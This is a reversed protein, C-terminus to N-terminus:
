YGQSKLYNYEEESIWEVVNAYTGVTGIDKVYFTMYQLIFNQCSNFYSVASQPQMVRLKNDGWVTGQFADATTGIIQEQPYMNLIPQLPDKTDFNVKIDYGDYLFNKFIVGNEQEPDKEVELLRIETSTMYEAFFTSTLVAHGVFKNIDFPCVKVLVVKTDCGYLDWVKEDPANLRLKVGISDIDEFSDFHGRIRVASSLEGAKITINNSELDYHLGEIANSGNDVIEVSYTRDYDCVTTASVPIDHYTEGDQIAISQLTDAFMVYDPGSYTVNENSCGTMIVAAAVLAGLNRLLRNM